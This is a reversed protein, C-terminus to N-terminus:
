PSAASADRTARRSSRSSRAAATTASSTWRSWDWASASRRSCRPRAPPAAPPTRTAGHGLLDVAICRRTDAVRDVVHRWLDHNLFVGHVFLAAPGRGREAYAIDGIPTVAHQLDTRVM